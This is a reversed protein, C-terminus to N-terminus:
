GAIKAEYQELMRAAEALLTERLPEPELVEVQGGWSWIWPLMENWNSVRLHLTCRKDDLIEIQQTVHWIREKILSAVDPSFALVVRTTDDNDGHIM